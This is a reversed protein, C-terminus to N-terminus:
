LIPTATETNNIPTITAHMTIACFCSSLTAFASSKGDTDDLVLTTSFSTFTASCVSKSSIAFTSSFLFVSFSELFTVVLFLLVSFVVLSLDAWFVVDFFDFSVFFWFLFLVSLVSSLFLTSGVNLYGTIPSTKVSYAFSLNTYEFM